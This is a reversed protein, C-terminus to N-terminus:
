QLLEIRNEMIKVMKGWSRNQRKGHRKLFLSEMQQIDLLDNICNYDSTAKELDNNNNIKCCNLLIANEMIKSLNNM